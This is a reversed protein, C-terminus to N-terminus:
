KRWRWSSQNPVSPDNNSVLDATWKPKASIQVRHVPLEQQNSNFSVRMLLNTVIQATCQYPWDTPHQIDSQPSNPSRDSAFGIRYEHVSSSVIYTDFM